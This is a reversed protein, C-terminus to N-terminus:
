QRSEGEPFIMRRLVLKKMYDQMLEQDEFTWGVSRIAATTAPPIKQIIPSYGSIDFNTICFPHRRRDSFITLGLFPNEADIGMMDLITPTIDLSSCLTDDSRGNWPDDGPLLITFPIFDCHNDAPYGFSSFFKKLENGAGMAHDATVIFVTNDRYRSKKFYEWLLGFSKDTSYIANLLNMDRANPNDYAFDYPPHMDLSNITLLFPEKIKNNELFSNIFTYLDVDNIGWGKRRKGKVQMQLELSEAAYFKDYSQKREFSSKLGGFFGSGGKIHINTYGRKKLVDSLLLMKCPVPPKMKDHPGRIRDLLYLTSGLAAIMGRETPYSAGYMHTFRFSSKVVDQVNPSLGKYGHIEEHLFIENFSELFVIIINAGPAIRPKKAHPSKPDLYISKKLLPYKVNQNITVGSKKIKELLSDDISVNDMAHPRAAYEIFSGIAESEPIHSYAAKVPNGSTGIGFALPLNILGIMSALAIINRKVNYAPAGEVQAAMKIFAKLLFAFVAFCSFMVTFLGAAVKTVLFSTGDVYFAHYWFNNDIHQGAFYMTGWDIIRILTLCFTIALIAIYLARRLRHGAARFILYVAALFAAGAVIYIGATRVLDARIENFTVDPMIYVLALHWGTLYLTIYALFIFPLMTNFIKKM